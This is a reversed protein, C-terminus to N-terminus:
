KHTGPPVPGTCSKARPDHWWPGLVPALLLGSSDPNPVPRTRIQCPPRAVLSGAGTGFASRQQGSKARTQNPNPVPAELARLVSSHGPRLEQVVWGQELLERLARKVTRVGLGAERALTAISAWCGQGGASCHSQIHGYLLYRRHAGPGSNQELLLRPIKVFAAGM